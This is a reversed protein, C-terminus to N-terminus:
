GCLALLLSETLLQRVIRLRSAGLASRVAIEKQRAVTRSLQGPAVRDQLGGLPEIIGTPVLTTVQLAASELPLVAEQLKRM